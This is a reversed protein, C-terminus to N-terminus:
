LIRITQGLRLVMTETIGNLCCIRSITTGHKTAIHWLTDGSRITHYKRMHVDTDNNSEVEDNLIEEEFNQPAKSYISFYDHRLLFTQRRLIGNKFDMLRQPDFARGYYRMEFHLHPGSSRGTSGGLGIEDGAEVWQNASVLRKSLHGYYTEMGNDHRIIVLNGYGGRNYTSIRVRGCFTAYIPDGTQLPLDVGMHARGRRSGFEGRPHVYGQYPCHFGRLSDVLDLIIEDPMKSFDADEYPTLDRNDWYKVFILSDRIVERNNIFIWTNDDLLKVNIFENDTCLTDIAVSKNNIKTSSIYRLKLRNKLKAISDVRHKAISLSDSIMSLKVIQPRYEEIKITTDATYINNLDTSDEVHQILSEKNKAKDRNCRTFFAVKVRKFWSSKKHKLSDVGIVSEIKKSEFYIRDKACIGMPMCCSWLLLLAILNRTTRDIFM